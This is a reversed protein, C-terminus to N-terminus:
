GRHSEHPGSAVAASRAPSMSRRALTVIARPPDHQVHESSPSVNSSLVGPSVASLSSHSRPRPYRTGCCAISVRLASCASFVSFPKVHSFGGFGGIGLISGVQFKFPNNGNTVIEKGVLDKLADIIPEKILEGRATYQSVISLAATNVFAQNSTPAHAVGGMITSGHALDRIKSLDTLASFGQVVSIFGSPKKIPTQAATDTLSKKNLSTMNYNIYINIKYPPIHPYAIKQM